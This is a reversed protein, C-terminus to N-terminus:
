DQMVSLLEKGLQNIIRKRDEAEVDFEKLWADVNSGVCDDLKFSKFKTFGPGAECLREPARNKADCESQTSAFGMVAIQHEELNCGLGFWVDSKGAMLARQFPFLKIAVLTQPFLERWM